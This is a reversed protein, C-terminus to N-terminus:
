ALVKVRQHRLHRGREVALQDVDVVDELEEDLVRTPVLKAFPLDDREGDLDHRRGHLDSILLRLDLNWDIPVRLHRLWLVERVRLLHLVLILLFDHAGLLVVPGGILLRAEAARNFAFGACTAIFYFSHRHM